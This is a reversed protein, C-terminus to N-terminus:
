SWHFPPPSPQLRRTIVRQFIMPKRVDEILRTGGGNLVLEIRGAGVLRRLLPQVVGVYAIDVLATSLDRRMLVGWQEVVRANTLLLRTTRWRVARLALWVCPVAVVLGEVWHLAVSTHPITVDLVVGVSIVILATALPGALFLWHPRIDVLVKEDPLLPLRRDAL